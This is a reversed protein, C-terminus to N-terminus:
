RPTLAENATSFSFGPRPGGSLVYISAGVAAAALGHRATPMPPMAQWSGTRPDFREAEDFTKQVAGFTEGGFVYVFGDHGVVAIGSRGTPLPPASSWTDTAPDYVEHTTMTANSGVRGGVTYIRGDHAAAGLHNRPTPMPARRVWTDTAPDYVEHTGVSSQDGGVGHESHDLSGANEANGGIAHIRDDLVVVALAGRPTPMPAGETWTGAAPDYIRVAGTPAFTNERFGGVLYLRGAHHVFGAHNVGQPIEGPTTWRDAAPDYVHLARPASAQDGVGAAFGGLLFINQGDTTASVETRADPVAARDSWLQGANDEPGAGNACGGVLLTITLFGPLRGGGGPSLGCGARPGLTCHERPRRLAAAPSRRFASTFSVVQTSM